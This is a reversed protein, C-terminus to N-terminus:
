RLRRSRATWLTEVAGREVDIDTSNSLKKSAFSVNRTFPSSSPRGKWGAGGTRTPCSSSCAPLSSKSPLPCRRCPHQPVPVIFSRRSRFSFISQLFWRLFSYLVSRPSPSAPIGSSASRTQPPLPWERRFEMPRRIRSTNSSEHRRGYSSHTPSSSTRGHARIGGWIPLPYGHTRQTRNQKLGVGIKVSTSGHPGGELQSIPRNRM